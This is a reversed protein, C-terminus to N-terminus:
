NMDKPWKTISFKDEKLQNALHQKYIVASGKQSGYNPIFLMGSM